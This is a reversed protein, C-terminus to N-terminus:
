KEYVNDNYFKKLESKVSFNHKKLYYFGESVYDPNNETRVGINLNLVISHQKNTTVAETYNNIEPEVTVYYEMPTLDFTKSITRRQKDHSIRVGYITTIPICNCGSVTTKRCLKKFVNDNVQLEWIPSTGGQLYYVKGYSMGPYMNFHKDDFFMEGTGITNLYPETFKMCTVGGNAAKTYVPNKTGEYFTYYWGEAFTAEVVYLNDQIKYSLSPYGVEDYLPLNVSSEDDQVMIQAYKNTYTMHTLGDLGIVSLMGNFVTDFYRYDAYTTLDAERGTILRVVPFRWEEVDYGGQGVTLTNLNFPTNDLAQKEFYTEPYYGEGYEPTGDLIFGAFLGPVTITKPIYLGSSSGQNSQRELYNPWEYAM